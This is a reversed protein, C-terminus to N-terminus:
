DLYDIDVIGTRLIGCIELQIPKTVKFPHDAAQSFHATVITLNWSYDAMHLVFFQFIEKIKM